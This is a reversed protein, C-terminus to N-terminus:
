FGLSEGVLVVKIRNKPSSFRTILIQGCLTDSTTCETCIGTVSCPTKKNLRITNPVTAEARARGLAVSLEPVIKNAGVILIVSDPGYTYAALRNGVGDINLLEGNMTIANTSGLFVDATLAQKMLRRKEEPSAVSDRDIVSIGKEALRQKIGIQNLTLSGGWAVVDEQRILSLVTEVAEERTQAYFSDMNRKKLNKIITECKVKYTKQIADM